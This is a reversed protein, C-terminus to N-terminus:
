VHARGIKFLFLYLNKIIREADSGQNRELESKEELWTKLKMDDAYNRFLGMAAHSHANVLGPLLIGDKGDITKDAIFGKPLINVGAIRDEEIYLSGNEIVEGTMTVITVHNIAIKM